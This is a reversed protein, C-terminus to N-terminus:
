ATAYRIGYNEWDTARQIYAGYRQPTGDDFRPRSPQSMRRYM